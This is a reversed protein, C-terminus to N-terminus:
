FTVPHQIFVSTVVRECELVAHYRFVHKLKKTIKFSCKATKKINWKGFKFDLKAHLDWLTARPAMLQIRINIIFCKGGVPFLLKSLANASSCFPASFQLMFVTNLDGWMSCSLISYIILLRENVHILAVPIMLLVIYIIEYVKIPQTHKVASYCNFLLILM